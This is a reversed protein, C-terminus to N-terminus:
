AMVSVQYEAKVQHLNDQSDQFHQELTELEAQCAHLQGRTDALQSSNRALLEQHQKSQM